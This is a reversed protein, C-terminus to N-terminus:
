LVIFYALFINGYMKKNIDDFIFSKRWYIIYLMAAQNLYFIYVVLKLKFINQCDAKYIFLIYAVNSSSRKSVM